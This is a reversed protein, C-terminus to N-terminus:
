VVYIDLDFDVVFVVERGFMEDVIDFGFVFFLVMDM